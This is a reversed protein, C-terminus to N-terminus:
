FPLERRGYRYDLPQVEHLSHISDGGGSGYTQSQLVPNPPSTSLWGKVPNLSKMYSDITLQVQNEDM